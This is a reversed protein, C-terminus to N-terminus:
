PHRSPYQSSFGPGRYSCATNKVVSDNELMLMERERGRERGRGSERGRGREVGRGEEEGEGEGEREREM